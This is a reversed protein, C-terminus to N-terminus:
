GVTLPSHSSAPALEASREGEVSPSSSTPPHVQLDWCTGAVSYSSARDQHSFSVYCRRMAVVRQPYAAPVPHWAVPVLPDLGEHPKWSSAEKPEVGWYTLM